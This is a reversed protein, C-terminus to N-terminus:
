RLARGDTAVTFVGPVFAPRTVRVHAIVHAPTPVVSGYSVTLRIGRSSRRAGYSSGIEADADPQTHVTVGAQQLACVLESELESNLFVPTADITVAHASRLATQAKAPTSTPSIAACPTSTRAPPEPVSTGSITDPTPTTKPTTTVSAVTGANCRSALGAWRCM